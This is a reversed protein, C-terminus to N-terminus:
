VIEYFIVKSVHAETSGPDINAAPFQVTLIDFGGSAWARCVHTTRDFAARNLPFRLDTPVLRGILLQGLLAPLDSGTPLIMENM